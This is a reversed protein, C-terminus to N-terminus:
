VYDDYDIEPKDREITFHRNGIWLVAPYLEVLGEDRLRVLSSTLLDSARKSEEPKATLDVLKLGVTNKLMEGHLKNQSFKAYVAAYMVEAENKEWLQLTEPTFTIDKNMTAVTNPDKHTILKKRYQECMYKGKGSAFSLTGTTDFAALYELHLTYKFYEMYFAVSPFEVPEGINDPMPDPMFISPEHEPNLIPCNSFALAFLCPSTHEGIIAQQSPTLQLPDESDGVAYAISAATYWGLPYNFPYNSGDVTFKRDVFVFPTTNEKSHLISNMGHVFQNMVDNEEPSLGEYKRVVQQYPTHRYAILMRSRNTEDGDIEKPQKICAVVSHLAIALVIVGAAAGTSYVAISNINQFHLILSIAVFILSVVFAVIKATRCEKPSFEICCSTQGPAVTQRSLGDLDM